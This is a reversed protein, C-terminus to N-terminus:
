PRATERVVLVSAPAHHVCKSAVSGLMRHHAANHGRHGVVLLAAGAAREVLVRAPEGVAVVADVVLTPVAARAREAGSEAVAAARDRLLARTGADLRELYPYDYSHVVELRAGIAAAQRAAVDVAREADPSGDFGVVVRIGTEGSM